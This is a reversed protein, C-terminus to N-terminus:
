KPLYMHHPLGCFSDTVDSRGNTVMDEIMQAMRNITMGNENKMTSVSERSHRIIEEETQGELTVVFRDMEILETQHNRRLYCFDTPTKLRSPLPEM